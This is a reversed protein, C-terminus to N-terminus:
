AIRPVEPQVRRPVQYPRDLVKLRNLEQTVEPPVNDDDNAAEHRLTSTMGPTWCAFRSAWSKDQGTEDADHVTGRHGSRRRTRRVTRQCHGADGCYQAQSRAEQLGAAEKNCLQGWEGLGDASIEDYNACVEHSM